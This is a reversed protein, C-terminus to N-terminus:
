WPNAFIFGQAQLNPVKSPALGLIWGGLVSATTWLEKSVVDLGSERLTQSTPDRQFEVLMGLRILGFRLGISLFSWLSVSRAEQVLLNWMTQIPDRKIPRDTDM